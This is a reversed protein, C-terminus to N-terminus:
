SKYKLHLDKKHSSEKCRINRSFLTNKKKISIQLDQTIWPKQQFKLEQKDLRKSPAHKEFLLGINYLYNKLSLNVNEKNVDIIEGCCVNQFDSIFLSQGFNKWNRKFINSKSKLSNAFFDEIIAFQPLHDSVTSRFNGLIISSNFTVNCFINDILTSSSNSIRTPLLILPSLFNSSLVDVFNNVPESTEYQLLDLNFDGLLFMKNSHKRNLNQLLSLIIDNTVNNM